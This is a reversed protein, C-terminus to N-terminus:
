NIGLPYEHMQRVVQTLCARTLPWPEHGWTDLSSLPNFLLLGDSKQETKRNIVEVPPRSLPWCGAGPPPNERWYFFRLPESCLLHVFLFNFRLHKLSAPHDHCGSPAGREARNSTLCLSVRFNPGVWPRCDLDVYSGIARLVEIARPPVRGSFHM